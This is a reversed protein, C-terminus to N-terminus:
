RKGHWRNGLISNNVRGNLLMAAVDPTIGALKAQTQYKLPAGTGERNENLYGVINFVALRDEPKVAAQATAIEAADPSDPYDVYGSNFTIVVGGLKRPIVPLAETLQLANDSVYYLSSDLTVAVTPANEDYYVVTVGPLAALLPRKLPIRLNVITDQVQKWQSRLIPMGTYSEMWSVAASIMYALNADEDTVQGNVVSEDMKLHAAVDALAVPEFPATTLRTIQANIRPLRKSLTQGTNWLSPIELISM